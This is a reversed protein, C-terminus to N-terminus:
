EDSGGASGKRWRRVWRVLALAGAGCNLLALTSPEPAPTDSVINYTVTFDRSFGPENRKPKYEFGNKKGEDGKETEMKIVALETKPLGVDIDKSPADNGPESYFLFTDATGDGKDVFRIVDSKGDDEKLIFDGAVVTGGAQAEFFTPVKLKPDEGKTPDVLMECKLKEPKAGPQDSSVTGVCQENVTVIFVGRASATGFGLLLPLMGVVIWLAKM